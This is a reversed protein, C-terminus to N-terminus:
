VCFCLEKHFISVSLSSKLLLFEPETFSVPSCVVLYDESPGPSPIHLAPVQCWIYPSSTFMYLIESGLLLYSVCIPSIVLHKVSPVPQRCTLAHFSTSRWWDNLFPFSLWSFPWWLGKLIALINSFQCYWTSVLALFWLQQSHLVTCNPLKKYLWVHM